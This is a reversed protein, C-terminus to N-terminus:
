AAQGKGAAQAAAIAGVGNVEIIEVGVVLSGGTMLQLWDQSFDVGCMIHEAFDHEIPGKMADGLFLNFKILLRNVADKVVKFKLEGGLPGEAIRAEYRAKQERMTLGALDSLNPFVMLRLEPLGAAEFQPSVLPRVLCDKFKSKMSDIRWEIRSGQVGDLEKTKLVLSEPMAFSLGPPPTDLLKSSQQPKSGLPLPQDEPVQPLTQPPATKIRGRGRVLGAPGSSDQLSEAEYGRSGPMPQAQTDSIGLRKQLDLTESLMDALDKNIQGRSRELKQVRERIGAVFFELHPAQQCTQAALDANPMTTPAMPTSPYSSMMGSMASKSSSPSSAYGMDAQYAAWM